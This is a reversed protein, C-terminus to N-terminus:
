RRSLRRAQACLISAFARRWTVRGLRRRWRLRGGAAGRWQPAATAQPERDGPEGKQQPQRGGAGRDAQRQSRHRQQPERQDEQRDERGDEYDYQRGGQEADGADSERETAQHLPPEAKARGVWQQGSEGARQDYEVKRDNRIDARDRQGRDRDTTEPERHDSAESGFGPPREAVEVPSALLLPPSRRM